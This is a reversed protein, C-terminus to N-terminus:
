DNRLQEALNELEQAKDKTYSSAGSDEALIIERQWRNMGYQTEKNELEKKLERTNIVNEEYPIYETGDESLMYRDTTERVEDVVYISMDIPETSYFKIKGNKIGIYM